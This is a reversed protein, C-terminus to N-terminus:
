ALYARATAREGRVASPLRSAAGNPIAESPIDRDRAAAIETRDRRERAPRDHEVAQIPLRRRRNLCFCKLRQDDTQIGVPVSLRM